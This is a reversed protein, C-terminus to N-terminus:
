ISRLLHSLCTTRLLQVQLATVLQM